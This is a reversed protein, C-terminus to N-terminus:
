RRCYGSCIAILQLIHVLIFFDLLIKYSCIKISYIDVDIKVVIVNAATMYVNRFVNCQEQLAPRGYKAKM